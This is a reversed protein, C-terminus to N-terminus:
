RGAGNTLGTFLTFKHIFCDLVAACGTFVAVTGLHILQASIPMSYEMTRVKGCCNDQSTPLGM